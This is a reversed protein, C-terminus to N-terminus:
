IVNIIMNWVPNPNNKITKTKYQVTGFEFVLFTDITGYKDMKVLNEGKILKIRIQYPKIKIFPPYLVGGENLDGVPGDTFYQNTEDQIAKTKNNGEFKEDKLPIAEDNPGICSVSFKLFGKIDERNQKINTLGIWQHFITHKAWFGM